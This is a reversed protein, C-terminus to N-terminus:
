LSELQTLWERVLPTLGAREDANLKENFSRMSDKIFAQGEPSQIRKKMRERQEDTLKATHDRMEQLRQEVLKKREEKSLHKWHERFRELRRNTVEKVLARRKETPLKELHKRLHEAVARRKKLPENELHASAVVDVLRDADWEDTMLIQDASMPEEDVLSFVAYAALWTVGILAIGFTVIKKNQM